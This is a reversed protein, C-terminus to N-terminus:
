GLLEHLRKINCEDDICNDPLRQCKIPKNAVISKTFDETQEFTYAPTPILVTFRNIAKLELTLVIFFGKFEDEVCLYVGDSVNEPAMPAYLRPFDNNPHKIKDRLPKYHGNLLFNYGTYKFLIIYASKYLGAAAAEARYKDPHKKVGDMVTGVDTNTLFQKAKQPNCKKCNIRFLVTGDNNNSLLGHLGSEIEFEVEAGHVGKEFEYRKVFTTLDADINEGYGNNCERCTIAIKRGGLANQPAHEESLKDLQVSTFSQLCFPCVYEAAIDIIDLKRLLEMHQKYVNFKGLTIAM